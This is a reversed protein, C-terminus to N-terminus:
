LFTRHFRFEVVHVGIRAFLVVHGAQMRFHQRPQFGDQVAFMDRRVHKGQLREIPRSACCLFASTQFQSWAGSCQGGCIIRCRCRQRGPSLMESQQTTFDLFRTSSKHSGVPNILSPGCKLPPEARWWWIERQSWWRPRDPSFLHHERLIAWNESKQRILTKNIVGAAVTLAYLLAM